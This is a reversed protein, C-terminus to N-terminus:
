ILTGAAVEFKRFGLHNADLLQQLLAIMRHSECVKVLSQFM